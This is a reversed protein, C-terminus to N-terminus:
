IWCWKLWGRCSGPRIIRGAGVRFTMDVPGRVVVPGDVVAGADVVEGADFVEGAVDGMSWLM